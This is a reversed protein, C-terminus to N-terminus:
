DRAKARKKFSIGAIFLVIWFFAAIAQFTVRESWQRQSLYTIHGHNNLAHTEGTGINPTTPASIFYFSIASLFFIFGLLWSTRALVRLQGDTM